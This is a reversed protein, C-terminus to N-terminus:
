GGRATRIDRAGGFLMCRAILRAAVLTHRRFEVVLDRERRAGLSVVPLDAKSRLQGFASRRSQLSCRYCGSTGEKGIRNVCVGVLPLAKMLSTQDREITPM